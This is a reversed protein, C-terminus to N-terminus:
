GEVRELKFTRRAGPPERWGIAHTTQGVAYPEIFYPFFDYEFARGDEMRHRVRAVRGDSWARTLTELVALKGVTRRM